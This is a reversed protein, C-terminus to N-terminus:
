ECDIETEDLSTILDMRSLPISTNAIKSSLNNNAEDDDKVRSEKLPTQTKSSSINASEDLQSMNPEDEDAKSPSENPPTQDVGVPITIRGETEEEEKAPSENPLTEGSTLSTCAIEKAELGKLETMEDM